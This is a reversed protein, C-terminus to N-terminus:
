QSAQKQPMPHQTMDTPYFLSDGAHILGTSIRSNRPYGMVDERLCPLYGGIGLNELIGDVTEGQQVVHVAWSGKYNHPAPNPRIGMDYRCGSLGLAVAGVGAALVASKLFNNKM